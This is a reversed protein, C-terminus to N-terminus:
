CHLNQAEIQKELAELNVKVRKHDEMGIKQGERPKRNGIKLSEVSEEGRTARLRKSQPKQTPNISPM